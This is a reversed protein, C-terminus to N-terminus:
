FDTRLSLTLCPPLHDTRPDQSPGRQGWRWEPWVWPERSLSYWTDGASEPSYTHRTTPPETGRSDETRTLM